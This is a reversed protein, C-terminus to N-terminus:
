VYGKPLTALARAGSALVALQMRGELISHVHPDPVDGCWTGLGPAPKSSAGPVPSSGYYVTVIECHERRGGFSPVFAFGFTARANEKTMVATFYVM